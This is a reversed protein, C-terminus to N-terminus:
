PIQAANNLLAALERSGNEGLQLHLQKALLRLDISGAANGPPSISHLTQELQLGTYLTHLTQTVAGLAKGGIIDAFEAEIEDISQVSDAILAQGRATFQLVRQRADTPHPERRLYELTELETAIVSIAQKSVDHLAAIRQISGGNIGIFPLVKGFSLKLGSHGRAQTLEMLRLMVYDALRPLLGGMAQHQAAKGSRASISLRLASYIKGLAKSTTRIQPQSVMGAFLLDIAAVAEVGDRRLREGAATLRLQKARGDIPDDIRQLYGAAEVQRAAQNCAQRSIRLMEALESVRLEAEGVLTIYPTFSLRLNAHGYDERLTAMMRTQLYNAVGMLYRPLNNQYRDYVGPAIPSTPETLPM